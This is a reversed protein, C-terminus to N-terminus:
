MNYLSYLVFEANYKNLFKILESKNHSKSIDSYWIQHLKVFVKPGGKIFIM